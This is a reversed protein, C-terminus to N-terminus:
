KPVKVMSHGSREDDSVESIGFDSIGIVRCEEPSEGRQERLSLGRAVGSLDLPQRTKQTLDSPESRKKRHVRRSSGPRPFKLPGSRKPQDSPLQAGGSSRCKRGSKSSNGFALPRLRQEREEAFEQYRSDRRRIFVQERRLKVRSDEFSEKVEASRASDKCV